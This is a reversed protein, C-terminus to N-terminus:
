LSCMIGREKRSLAKPQAVYIEEKIEGNIVASKVDLHHLNWKSQAALAMCIQISEVRAVLSFIENYDVGNKQIYCRAVIHTKLRTVEGTSNRKM